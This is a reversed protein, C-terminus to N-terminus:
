SPENQKKSLRSKKDISWYDKCDGTVRFYKNNKEMFYSLKM